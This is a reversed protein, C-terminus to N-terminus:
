PSPLLTFSAGRSLYAPIVSNHTEEPFLVYDVELGANPPRRLLAVLVESNAVPAIEDVYARYRRKMDELEAPEVAKALAVDEEPRMESEFGGVTVLLRRPQDPRTRRANFARAENMISKGGWWISPSAAVYTQFADPRSFLTHLVFLGGLSHGFLAQRRRDIPLREEVAPKVREEIFRLFADAEGMAGWPEGLNDDPLTSRDTAPTLDRMRETGTATEPYGVGVVVVPGFFPEQTRVTEVLTAFSWSPDLVYIIPYGDVPAAEAPAAISLLYPRGAASVLEVQETRALVYASSRSPEAPVPESRCAAVSLLIFWLGTIRM